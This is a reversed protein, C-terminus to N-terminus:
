DIEYGSITDAGPETVDGLKLFFESGEEVTGPGTVAITPKVNLVQLTVPSGQDVHLGDPDRLDVTIDPETIGNVHAASNGDAYVHTVIRRTSDGPVTPLLAWQYTIPDNSDDPDDWHVVVESVNVGGIDVIPGLTLTYLNDELVETRDGNLTITPFVPDIDVVTLSNGFVSRVRHDRLYAM